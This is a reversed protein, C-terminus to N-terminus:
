SNSDVDVDSGGENGYVVVIPFPYSKQIESARSHADISRSFEEGDIRVWQRLAGIGEPYELYFMNVEM